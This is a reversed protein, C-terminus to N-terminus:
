VGAGISAVLDVPPTICQVATYTGEQLLGLITWGFYASVVGVVVIVAAGIGLLLANQKIWQKFDFAGKSSMVIDLERNSMDSVGTTFMNLPDPSGEVYVYTPIRNFHHLLKPNRVFTNDKIKFSGTEKDVKIFMEKIPGNKSVYLLNVHNGFGFMIRRKMHGIFKQGIGTAFLALLVIINVLFSMSFWLITDGATIDINTKLYVLFGISIVSFFIIGFLWKKFGINASVLNDNDDSVKSVVSRLDDVKSKLLEENSFKGEEEFQPLPEELVDESLVPEIPAEIDDIKEKIKKKFLGM